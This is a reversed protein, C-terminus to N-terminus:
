VKTFKFCFLNMGNTGVLEATNEDIYYMGPYPGTVDNCDYDQVETFDAPLALLMVVAQADIGFDETLHIAREAGEQLQRVVSALHSYM